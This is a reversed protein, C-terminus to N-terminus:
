PKKLKRSEALLWTLWFWLSSPSLLWWSFICSSLNHLTLPRGAHVSSFYSVLINSSGLVFIVMQGLLANLACSSCTLPLLMLWFRIIKWPNRHESDWEPPVWSSSVPQLFGVISDSSPPLLDSVTHTLLSDFLADEARQLQRSHLSELCQLYLRPHCTYTVEHLTHSHKLLPKEKLMQKEVEYRIHLM